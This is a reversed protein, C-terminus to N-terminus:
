RGGGSDPITLNMLVAEYKSIACDSHSPSPLEIRPACPQLATTSRLDALWSKPSTALLSNNARDTVASLSISM